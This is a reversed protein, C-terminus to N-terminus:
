SCHNVDFKLDNVLDITEVNPLHNRTKAHRNSFFLFNARPDTLNFRLVIPEFLVLRFGQSSHEETCVYEKAAVDWEPATTRAVFMADNADSYEVIFDDNEEDIVCGIKEQKFSFPLM